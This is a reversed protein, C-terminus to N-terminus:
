SSTKDASSTLEDARYSSRVFPGSAVALFGLERGIREYEEFVEPRVYRVVKVHGATPRLYQGVTLLDCRVARLDHMTKFVEEDTEGLGVMLGSKTWTQPRAQKAWALIQLSRRYDAGSRVRRTLREVTELNHNYVEPGVSCVLEVSRRRGAFDPTLVEVKCRPNEARIARITQSFHEAGGDPLDDRTVSTVVAYELAMRKVALAIRGPESADLEGPQVDGAVACFACHRTCQDGMIMFTATGSSWCENLNPCRAEKCVTVVGLSKLTAATGSFRPSLVLHKRLWPPLSKRISDSVNANKCTM